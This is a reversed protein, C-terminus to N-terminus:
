KPDFLSNSSPAKVLRKVIRAPLRNPLPEVCAISSPDVSPCAWDNLHFTNPNDDKIKNLIKRIPEIKDRRIFAVRPLITGDVTTAM